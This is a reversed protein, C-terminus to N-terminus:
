HLIWQVIIMLMEFSPLLLWPYWIWGALTRLVLLQHLLFFPLHELIISFEVFDTHQGKPLVTLPFAIQSVGIAARNPSPKWNPISTRVGDFPTIRIQTHPHCSIPQFSVFDQDSTSLVWYILRNPLFSMKGPDHTSPSCEVVVGFLCLCQPCNCFWTRIAFTRPLLQFAVM